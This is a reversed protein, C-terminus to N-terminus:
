LGQGGLFNGLTHLINTPFAGDYEEYLKTAERRMVLVQPGITSLLSAHSAWPYILIPQVGLVPPTPM